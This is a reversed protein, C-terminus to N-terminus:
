PFLFDINAFINLMNNSFELGIEPWEKLYQFSTTKSIVWDTLIPLSQPYTKSIMPVYHRLWQIVGFPEVNGPITNLLKLINTDKLTPIISAAHQKLIFCAM